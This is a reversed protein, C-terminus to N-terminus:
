IIEGLFLLRARLKRPNDPLGHGTNCGSCTWGRFAGTIHDHDMHFRATKDGCCQCRGDFPHPPCDREKPPPTYGHKIANRRRAHDRASVTLWKKTRKERARRAAKGQDSTRHKKNAIKQAAAREELTMAPSGHFMGKHSASLKARHEQSFQRPPHAKLCDLAIDLTDAPMPIM